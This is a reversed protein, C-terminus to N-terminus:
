DRGFIGDDDVGGLQTFILHQRLHLFQRNRTEFFLQVGEREVRATARLGSIFFKHISGRLEKSDTVQLGRDASSGSLIKFRFFKDAFDQM